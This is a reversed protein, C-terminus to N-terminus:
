NANSFLYLFFNIKFQHMITNKLDLFIQPLSTNQSVADALVTLSIAPSTNRITM